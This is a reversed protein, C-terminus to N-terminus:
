NSQVYLLDIIGTSTLNRDTHVWNPKCFIGNKRLHKPTIKLFNIIIAWEENKGVESYSAKGSFNCSISLFGQNIQLFFTVFKQDCNACYYLFYVEDAYNKSLYHPKWTIPCLFSKKKMLEVLVHSSITRLNVHIITGQFLTHDIFSFCKKTQNVFNHSMRMLSLGPAGGITLGALGKDYTSLNLVTSIKVLYVPVFFLASWALGSHYTDFSGAYFICNFLMLRMCRFHNSCQDFKLLTHFIM